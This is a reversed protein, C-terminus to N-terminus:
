ALLLPQELHGDEFYASAGQLKIKGDCLWEICQPYIIHEKELVRKALVEATDDALVDVPAQLIVPGGDLEETVFHVSCGHQAVGADLARQHTNLGPFNPLLAPHINLINGLYESVLTPGLIRMFGALAIINVQHQQLVEILATEFATRSEYDGHQIVLNPINAQKARTLAYADTVNSIVCAIEANCSGFHINDIIAQLNTGGGSVLVGIKNVTSM